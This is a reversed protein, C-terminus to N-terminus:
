SKDEQDPIKQRKDKDHASGFISSYSILAGILPMRGNISLAVARAV